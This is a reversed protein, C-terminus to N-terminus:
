VVVDPCVTLISRSRLGPSLGITIADTAPTARKGQYGNGDSGVEQEFGSGIRRGNRGVNSRGRQRADFLLTTHIGVLDELCAFWGNDGQFDEVM